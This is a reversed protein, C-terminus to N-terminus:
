LRLFMGYKSPDNITEFASDYYNAYSYKFGRLQKELKQLEMSLATNHLKVLTSVEERCSGESGNVLVKVFPLCGLPSLNLLGFKRGGQNYMEKCDCMVFVILFM